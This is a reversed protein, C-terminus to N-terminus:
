KGNMLWDFYILANLMKIALTKKEDSRVSTQSIRFLLSSSLFCFIRQFSFKHCKKHSLENPQSKNPRQGNNFVTYLIRQIGNSANTFVLAVFHAGVADNQWQIAHTHTHTHKSCYSFSRTVRHPAFMIKVVGHTHTQASM